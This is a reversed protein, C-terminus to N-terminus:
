EESRPRTPLVDPLNLSKEQSEPGGGRLTTTVQSAWPTLDVEGEAGCFPCKVFLIRAGETERLLSYEEPCNWCKFKPREAM